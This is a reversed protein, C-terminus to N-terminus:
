ARVRNCELFHSWAHDPRPHHVSPGTWLHCGAPTGAPDRCWCRRHGHHPQHHQHRGERVPTCYGPRPDYLSRFDDSDTLQEGFSKMGENSDDGGRRALKQELETVRALLGDAGKTLLDIANKTDNAIKGTEAIEKNAKEVFSKIEEDRKALADMVSKLAIQDDARDGSEKYQMYSSM